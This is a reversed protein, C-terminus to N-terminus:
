ILFITLTSYKFYFHENTASIVTTTSLFSYTCSSLKILLSTLTFYYTSHKGRSHASTSFYLLMFHFYYCYTCSAGFTFHVWTFASLKSGCSIISSIFTQTALCVSTQKKTQLTLGYLQDGDCLHGVWPFPFRMKVKNIPILEFNICIVVRRGTATSYHLQLPQTNNEEKTWQIDFYM